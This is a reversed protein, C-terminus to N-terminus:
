RANASRQLPRALRRADPADHRKQSRSGGVATSGQAQYRWRLVPRGVPGDTGHASRSADGRVMLWDAGAAPSADSQALVSASTGALGALVFTLTAIPAVLRIPHM